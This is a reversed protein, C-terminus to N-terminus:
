GLAAGQAGPPTDATGASGAVHGSGGDTRTNVDHTCQSNADTGACQSKLSGHPYQKGVTDRLVLAVPCVHLRLHCHTAQVNQPTDAGGNGLQQGQCGSTGPEPSCTSM